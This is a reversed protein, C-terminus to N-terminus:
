FRGGVAVLAGGPVPVATAAIAPGTRPAPRPEAPLAARADEVMASVLLYGAGVAAVGAVGWSVNAVLAQTRTTEALDVAQSRATARLYDRHSRQAQAGSVAAAGAVGSGIWGWTWLRSRSAEGLLQIPILDAEVPVVQGAAVSVTTSWRVFGAKQVTITHPGELVRPAERLPSEGLAKGDLTVTAGPRDVSVRVVGTTDLRRGTLAEHALRRAADVLERESADLLTANARALTRSKKVDLLRVTLLASRELITLSGALLRDSDLAGALDAMCGQDDSCGLMQRTKELGLLAAVEGQSLVQHDSTAAAAGAAAAEALLRALDPHASGALAFDLVALRHAPKGPRVAPRPEPAPAPKVEPASPPVTVAPSPAPPESLKEQALAPAAALLAAALAIAKM